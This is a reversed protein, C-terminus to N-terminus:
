ETVGIAEGTIEWGVLHTGKPPWPWPPREALGTYGLADWVGEPRSMDIEGLEKAVAAQEVPQLQWYSVYVQCCREWVQQRVIEPLGELEDREWELRDLLRRNREYKPHAQGHVRMWERGNRIREALRLQEKRLRHYKDTLERAQKWEEIVQAYWDRGPVLPGVDPPRAGAPREPAVKLGRVRAM